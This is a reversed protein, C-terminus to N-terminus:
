QESGMESEHNCFGGNTCSGNDNNACSRDGCECSKDNPGDEDAM